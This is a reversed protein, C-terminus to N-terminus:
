GRRRVARVILVIVLVPIGVIILIEGLGIQEFLALV